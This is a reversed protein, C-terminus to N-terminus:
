RRKVREDLFAITKNWAEVAAAANYVPSSDYDFGHEVNRYIVLDFQRDNDRAIRQMALAHDVFEKYSDADGQFALIPVRLDKM